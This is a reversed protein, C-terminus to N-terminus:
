YCGSYDRTQESLFDKSLDQSRRSLIQRREKKSKVGVAPPLLGFNANMPSFDGSGGARIYDLLGRIMTGRPPEFPRDDKAIKRLINIAVCIGTCGSELYGEVGTLQGALFLRSHGRFSLDAELVEPSRFYTNRHITGMRFFEAQAMGPLSCFIRKQEGYTLKTQFGVMSYMTGSLNERRMQIVGFYSEGTDPNKLGLPKLPGFRLTDPGRDVLVEIPLCSEFYRVEEFSQLPVRQASELDKVFQYYQQKNLPINLYDDGDEYRSGWFLQSLDLSEFDVIPAISDYFALTEGSLNFHSQLSQCLLESTLPGSAIVWYENKEVMEQLTPVETCEKETLRFHPFSALKEEVYRSFQVRDVALAQGAPVKSTEAAELILSGLQKMEGKLVGSPTSENTSKFSNSCVLEGLSDTKHAPSRKGPRMELLEVSFGHKLLFYAAEIGSLGGGVIVIKPAIMKRM